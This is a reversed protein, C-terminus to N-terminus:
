LYRFDPVHPEMVLFPKNGDSRTAVLLRHARTHKVDRAFRLETEHEIGFEPRILWMADSRPKVPPLPTTALFERDWSRLLLSVHVIWCQFVIWRCPRPIPHQLEECISMKRLMQLHEAFRKM